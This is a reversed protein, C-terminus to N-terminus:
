SATEPPPTAWSRGLLFAAVGGVLAVLPHAVAWPGVGGELDLIRVVDVALTSMSTLAGCVGVTVGFRVTGATLARTAVGLLGAGAVNVVLTATPMGAVGGIRAVGLGDIAEFVAVRLLTGVVGGLAIAAWVRPGHSM